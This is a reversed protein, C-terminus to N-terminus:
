SAPLNVYREFRLCDWPTSIVGALHQKTCFREARNASARTKAIVEATTWLLEARSRGYQRVMAKNVAPICLTREVFVYMPNPNLEFLLRCPNNAWSGTFTPRADGKM